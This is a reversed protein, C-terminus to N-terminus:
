RSPFEASGRYRGREHQAEQDISTDPEVGSLVDVTLPQDSSDPRQHVLTRNLQEDWLEHELLVVAVTRLDDAAERRAGTGM